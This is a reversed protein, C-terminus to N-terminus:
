KTQINELDIFEDNISLVEGIWYYYDNNFYKKIFAEAIEQKANNLNTFLDETSSSQEKIKKPSIEDETWVKWQSEM